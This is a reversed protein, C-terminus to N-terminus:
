SSPATNFTVIVMPANTISILIIATTHFRYSVCVFVSLTPFSGQFPRVRSHVTAEGEGSCVYSGIGTTFSISGNQYAFTSFLSNSVVVSVRAVGIAISEIRGNEIAIDKNT